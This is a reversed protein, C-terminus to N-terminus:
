AGDEEETLALEVAQAIKGSHILEAAREIDPALIRDQGLPPIGGDRLARHAARTGHGPHRSSGETRLDLAQAACLME